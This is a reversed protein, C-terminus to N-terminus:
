RLLEVRHESSAQLGDPPLEQQEGEVHQLSVTGRRSPGHALLPGPEVGYHIARFRAAFLHRAAPPLESKRALVTVKKLQAESLNSRRIFRDIMQGLLLPAEGGDLWLAKLARLAHDHPLPSASAQRTELPVIDTLVVGDDCVYVSLRNPRKHTVSAPSFRLLDHRTM